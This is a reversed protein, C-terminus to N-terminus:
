FVAGNSGGDGTVHGSRQEPNSSSTPTMTPPDGGGVTPQSPPMTDVV